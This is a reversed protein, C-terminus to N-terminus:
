GSRAGAGTRPARAFALRACDHRGGTLVRNPDIRDRHFARRPLHRFAGASVRRSLISRFMAFSEQRPEVLRRFRAFAARSRSLAAHREILLLFSARALVLLSTWGTPRMVPEDAFRRSVVGDDSADSLPDRRAPHGYFPDGRCRRDVLVLHLVAFSRAAVACKRRPEHRRSVARRWRVLRSSSCFARTSSGRSPSGFRRRPLRDRERARRADFFQRSAWGRGYVSVM